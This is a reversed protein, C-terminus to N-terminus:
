NAVRSKYSNFVIKVSSKFKAANMSQWEVALGEFYVTELDRCNTFNDVSSISSIKPIYIKKMGPVDGRFSGALISYVKKGSYEKPVVVEGNSPIFNYGSVFASNSSEPTNYKLISKKRGYLAVDDAIVSDDTIKKTMSSDLYWENCGFVCDSSVWDYSSIKKGEPMKKSEVKKGDIIYSVTITSRLEDPVPYLCYKYNVGNGNFEFYYNDSEFSTPLVTSFSCSKEIDCELRIISPNLFFRDTYEAKNKERVFRPSSIKFETPKTNSSLLGISFSVSYTDDSYSKYSSLKSFSLTLSGNRIITKDTYATNKTNGSTCGAILIFPILFIYKKKIFNNRM